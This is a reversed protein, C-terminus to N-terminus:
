IMGAKEFHKKFMKKGIVCGILAFIITGIIMLLLVWIPTMAELTNCFDASMGRELTDAFYYDRMMWIPLFGGLLNQSFVVYSLANLKNNKFKGIGAILEALIGAVAGTVAVIWINGQLLLFLCPLVAAIFIPGHVPAKALLMFYVPAAALAIFSSMCLYLPPIPMCCMGIIVFVVFYLAIFVGASVLRKSKQTNNKENM